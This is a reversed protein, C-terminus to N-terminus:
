HCHSKINNNVNNFSKRPTDLTSTKKKFQKRHYANLREEETLTLAWTGLIYLLISKVLTKYLKIRTATKLTNGKIWVNNLKYLPVTALQKRREVDKDDDIFSGGKKSRVM